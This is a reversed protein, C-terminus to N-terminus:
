NGFIRTLDNSFALIMLGAIVVLGMIQGSALIRESLASGKIAEMAFFVLQGGDLAPIPLMNVIFLSLSVLAIFRMYEGPGREASSAAVQAITIPGSVNKPSAAGSLLSKIQTISRSLFYGTEYWGQKIGGLFGERRIVTHRSFGFGLRWTQGDHRAKANLELKRGAREIQLLAQGQHEKGRKQLGDIFESYNNVPTNNIALIRDGPKLGAEAAASNPLIEGVIPMVMMPLIGVSELLKEDFREPMARLDLAVQRPAANPADVPRVTVTVSRNEYGASVLEISAETWNNIPTDNIRIIEEGFRLGAQEAVGSVKGVVARDDTVGIWYIASFAFVALIFNAMPGALVVLSRKWVPMLNFAGAANETGPKIESGDSNEFERTDYFRVYGGLPLANICFEIGDKNVRKYLTPGFGIAYRIVAFGLKRGVWYHGWEHWAVLVSVTVVFWFVTFMLAIFATM